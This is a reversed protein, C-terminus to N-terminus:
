EPASDAEREPPLMGAARGHAAEDPRWVSANANSARLQGQAARAEALRARNSAELSSRRGTRGRNSRPPTRRGIAHIGLAAGEL